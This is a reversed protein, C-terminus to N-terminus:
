CGTFLMDLTRLYYLPQPLIFGGLERLPDDDSPQYETMVM